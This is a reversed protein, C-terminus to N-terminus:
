EHYIGMKQLYKKADASLRSGPDIEVIESFYIAAKSYKKNEYYFKGLEFKLELANPNIMVSNLLTDEADQIRGAKLYSQYLLITPAIVNPNIKVAVTLYRIAEDFKSLSYLALGINYNVRDAFPYSPDDLVKEWIVIAEDLKEESALISAYTNLYESENPNLELAKKINEKADKLRNKKVYFTSLAYYFRDDNPNIEIAKQFEKVALYDDETGLYAIGMKFHAEALNNKKVTANNTTSTCSLLIFVTFISLIRKM